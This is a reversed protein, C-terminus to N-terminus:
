FFFTVELRHLVLDYVLEVTYNRDGVHQEGLLGFTDLVLERAVDRAARV